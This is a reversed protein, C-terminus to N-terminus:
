TPQGPAALPPRRSETQLIAEHVAFQALALALLAVAIVEPGLSTELVGVTWPTLVSGLAGGALQLGIANPSHRRGVLGPTRAIGLPYVSALSWGLLVLGALGLGPLPAWWLLAAGVIAVATSARLVGRAALRDGVLGLLVRSSLVCLFYVSVWFGAAEPPLGRGESLLSGTLQGAGLSVGSHVFYFAMGLLVLPLRLSHLLPPKGAAREDPDESELGWGQLSAALLLTVLVQLAAMIGFALRWSLGLELALLTVLFPALVSGLGYFVHLWSLRSAPYRTAVFTNVGTNLTGMGLGLLLSSGLLVGWVPGLAYGSLGLAMLASSGLCVRALGFRGILAGSLSGSALAGLTMLALLQGLGELTRGFAPGLELWAVGLAAAPMGYVVFSFFALWLLGPRPPASAVPTFM